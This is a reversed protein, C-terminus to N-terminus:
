QPRSGRPRNRRPPRNRPHKGQPRIEGAHCSLSVLIVAAIWFVTWSECIWGIIGAMLLCGQIYGQNLKHRSSM